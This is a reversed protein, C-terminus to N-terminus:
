LRQTGPGGAAPAPEPSVEPLDAMGEAARGEYQPLSNVLGRVWGARLVLVLPVVTAAALVVVVLWGPVWAASPMGLITGATNPFLVVASALGLVLAIYTIGLMRINSINALAAIRNSTRALENATEAIRNSEEATRLLILDSLSQQLAACLAHVREIEADLGPRVRDFGPFRDLFPGGLEAVAVTTRSLQARVLATRHHLAWVDSTPVSRGREQLESLREDLAEVRELYMRVVDSLRDVLEGTSPDLRHGRSPGVAPAAGGYFRVGGPELGVGLWELTGDAAPRGVTVLVSGNGHLIPHGRVEELTRGVVALGDALPEPPGM